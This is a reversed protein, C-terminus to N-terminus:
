KNIYLISLGKKVKNRDVQPHNKALHRLKISADGFQGLYIDHMWSIGNLNRENLFTQLRDRYEYAHSQSLLDSYLGLTIIEM